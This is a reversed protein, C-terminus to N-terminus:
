PYTIKIRRVEENSNKKKKKKIKERKKNMFQDFEDIDDRTSDSFTGLVSCGSFFLIIGLIKLNEM